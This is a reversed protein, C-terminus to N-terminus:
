DARGGGQETVKLWHRGRQAETVSVGQGWGVAPSPPIGCRWTPPHRAQVHPHTSRPELQLSESM